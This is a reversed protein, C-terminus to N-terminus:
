TSRKLKTPNITSNVINVTVGELVVLDYTSDGAKYEEVTTGVRFEMGDTVQFVDIKLLDPVSYVTGIAAKSGDPFHMRVDQFDLGTSRLELTTNNYLDVKVFEILSSGGSGLNITSWGEIRVAYAKLIGGSEVTIPAFGSIKNVLQCGNQAYTGDVGTNKLGFRCDANNKVRIEYPVDSDFPDFYFYKNEEAFYSALTGDGIELACKFRYFIDEKEVQGWFPKTNVAIMIDDLTNPTGSSGATVTIKQYRHFWDMGYYADGNSQKDNNAGANRCFVGVQNIASYNPTGGTRDPANGSVRIFNWGGAFDDNGGIDWEAWNSASSYVRVRLSDSPTDLIQSEDNSAKPILFWFGLEWATIDFATFTPTIPGHHAADAPAGWELAYTGQRSDYTESTELRLVSSIDEGNLATFGTTSECTNLDASNLTIAM